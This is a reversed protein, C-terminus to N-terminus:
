NLAEKEIMMLLLLNHEIAFIKAFLEDLLESENLNQIDEYTLKGPNTMPTDGHAMIINTTANNMKQILDLLEAKKDNINLNKYKNIVQQLESNM